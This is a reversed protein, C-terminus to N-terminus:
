DADEEYEVDMAFGGGPTLTVTCYNWARGDAAAMRARITRLLELMQETAEEGPQLHIVWGDAQTAEIWVRTVNDLIEAGLSAKTFGAPCQAAVLRGLALYAVNPDTM